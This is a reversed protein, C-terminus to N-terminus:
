GTAAERAKREQLAAHQERRRLKNRTDPREGGWIGYGELRPFMSTDLCDAQVPCNNCIRQLMPLNELSLDFFDLGSEACSSSDRWHQESIKM